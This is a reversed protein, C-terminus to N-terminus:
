LRILLHNSKYKHEVVFADIYVIIILDLHKVRDFTGSRRFKLVNCNFSTM